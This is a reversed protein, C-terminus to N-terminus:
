TPAAVMVRPALAGNPIAKSGVLNGMGNASWSDGWSNWITITFPDRKVLRVACVSHSWWDFDVITPVDLLLLTGLQLRVQDGSDDLDWWSECLHLKANARMAPTDNSPSMSQM